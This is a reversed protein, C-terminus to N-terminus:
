TKVNKTRQLKRIKELLRETHKNEIVYTTVGYKSGIRIEGIDNLSLSLEGVTEEQITKPVNDIFTNGTM